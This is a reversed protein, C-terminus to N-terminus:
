LGYKDKLNDFSSVNSINQEAKWDEYDTPRMPPFKGSWEEVSYDVAEEKMIRALGNDLLLELDYIHDNELKVRGDEVYYIKGVEANITLNKSKLKIIKVM